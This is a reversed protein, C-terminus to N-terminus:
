TSRTPVAQPQMQYCPLFHQNSLHWSSSFPNLLTFRTISRSGDAKHEPEPQAGPVWSIKAGGRFVGSDQLFRCKKM